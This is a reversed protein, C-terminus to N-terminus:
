GEQASIRDGLERKQGPDACPRWRITDSSSCTPWDLLAHDDKRRWKAQQPRAQDMTGAVPGREPRNTGRRGFERDRRGQRLGGRCRARCRVTHRRRAHSTPCGRAKARAGGQGQVHWRPQRDKSLLNSIYGLAAAMQDPTVGKATMNAAMTPSPLWTDPPAQLLIELLTKRSLNPQDSALATVIKEALLSQTSGNGSSAKTLHTRIAAEAVQVEEISLGSISFKM